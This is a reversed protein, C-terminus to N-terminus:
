VAPVDSANTTGEFDAVIQDRHVIAAVEARNTVELKSFIRGLHSEVTRRGLFLRDAIQPNTLGQAVLEAVERERASLARTGKPGRGARVAAPRVGLSRLDLRAAGALALAGCAEFVDLAIQYEAVAAERRGCGTLARGALIRARGAEIPAGALEASAVAALAPGVAADPQGQAILVAALARSASCSSLNLGVDAAVDAARTAWERAKDLDGTAVSAKALTEFAGARWPKAVLPGSVDAAAGLIMEICRDPLGAELFLPAISLATVVRVKPDACLELYTQAEAAMALAAPLDGLLATLGSRRALVFSLNGPDEVIRALQEAADCMEAASELRGLERLVGEAVLRFILEARMNDLDQALRIGRIACRLAVDPKGLWYAASVFLVLQDVVYVLQNDLLRDIVGAAEELHEIALRPSGIHTECFVIVAGVGFILDPQGLDAATSSALEAWFRMEALDNRGSAQFMLAAALWSREPSSHDPLEALEAKFRQPGSVHEGLWSQVRAFHVVLAARAEHDDDPVIELAEALVQRSQEFRGTRILADAQAIMLTPRRQALGGTDPLLRLVSGLLRVSTKPALARAESAASTILDIADVDGIRASVELHRAVHIVGFGSDGLVRAARAHAQLRWGQGTAEYIVRGLLPHRFEFGGHSDVPVVLARGLLEDVAQFTEEDTLEGVSGAQTVVFPDGLVAAAEALRKAAEPLADLEALIATAVVPPYGASVKPRRRVEAGAPERAHVALQTLFFPNGGAAHLVAARQSAPVGALLVKADASGIPGLEILEVPTATVKEGSTRGAALHSARLATAMLLPADIGHRVLFGFVTRSAEDVWHLDDIILVLGRSKAALVALASRVARCVLLVDIRSPAAYGPVRSRLGPLVSALDAVDFPDLLGANAEVSLVDDLLSVLVGFAFDQEARFGGSRLCIFGRSGVESAFADLLTTKGMGAEGAVEVVVCFGTGVLDLAASFRELERDRGVLLAQQGDM